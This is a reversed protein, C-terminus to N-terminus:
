VEAEKLLRLVDARREPVIEVLAAGTKGFTTEKREHGEEDLCKRLLGREVLACRRACVTAYFMGTGHHITRNSCKGDNRLVYDLVRAEQENLREEVDEAAEKSAESGKQFPATESLVLVPPDDYPLSLSASATM